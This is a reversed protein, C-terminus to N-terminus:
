QNMRPDFAERLAEGLINISVLLVLLLAAPWFIVWPAYMISNQGQSLLEGISPTPPNLGFGLYDLATLTAIGASITFPTYTIIPVLANPLIHKFLIRPIGGGLAQAAECFERRSLSLFQARMQQSIYMWSWVSVISLTVVVSRVEFFSNVTIIVVFYPLISLFEKSREMVFDLKGVFYGQVAGIPIGVCFAVLWYLVGFLLSMRTGYILRALMDRGLNDTGLWHEASPPQNPSAPQVYPGWRNIPYIAFTNKGAERDEEIIAPYDVVFYDEVGFDEVSYEILAPFYAKGDRVILLPNQHSFIEAGLSVVTICVLCFLGALARKQRFFARWRRVTMPTMPIKCFRAM